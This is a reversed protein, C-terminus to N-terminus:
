DTYSFNKQLNYIKRATQPAVESIVDDSDIEDALERETSLIAVNTLRADCM